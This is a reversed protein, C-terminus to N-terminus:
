RAGIPGPAPRRRRRDDRTMRANSLLKEPDQGSEPVANADVEADTRPHRSGYRVDHCIARRTITCLMAPVDDPMPNDRIYLYMQMFVEQHTGEADEVKSRRLMSWVLDEHADYVDVISAYTRAPRAAPPSIGPPRARVGSRRVPAEAPQAGEHGEGSGAPEGTEGEWTDDEASHHASMENYRARGLPM